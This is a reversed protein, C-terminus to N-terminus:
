SGRKRRRKFGAAGFVAFGSALLALTSPEPVTTALIRDYGIVDMVRLDVVSVPNVVNSNSFQNFADNTGPAWDETDLGNACYNNKQKLLTTGNDISEWNNTSSCGGGFGGGRAGPGTFTFLDALDFSNTNNGITGGMLGLRGMVESIEHAAVGQFDFTGPAIAGSFTFPNGAGFTTTGDNNANDAILGLAKAQATTVWWTHTGGVPDAAPISGGAGIATADDPTKADAIVGARLSAFPGSVLFTNSQGFVSTGAVASVTINIHVNDSFNTQFVNAAAIWANQAAIANVGFSTNFAATFTPTIILAASPRPAVLLATAGLFALM